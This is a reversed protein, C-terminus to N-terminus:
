FGLRRYLDESKNVNRIFVSSKWPTYNFLKHTNATYVYYRPFGKGTQLSMNNNYYDYYTKRILAMDSNGVKSNSAGQTAEPGFHSHIDFILDYKNFNPSNHFADVSGSYLYKPNDNSTGVVYEKGGGKTRYGAVAWEVDCNDAGFKFIKFADEKNCVSYHGNYDNRDITLNDLSSRDNVTIFEGTRKNNKDLAYLRHTNSERVWNINGKKDIEWEDEGNPDILKIPNNSCYVYNSQHPYKDSMPDVSLWISLDSSYYRSGFYSLGTETDKEKASFTHTCNITFLSYNVTPLPIAFHSVSFFQERKMQSAYIKRSAYELEM